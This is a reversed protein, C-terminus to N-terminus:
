PQEEQEEKLIEEKTVAKLGYTRETASPKHKQWQHRHKGCNKWSRGTHELPEVEWMNPIRERPKTYQKYEPIRTDRYTRFWHKVTRGYTSTAKHVYPVPDQRYTYVPHNRFKPWRGWLYRISWRFHSLRGYQTIFDALEHRLDLIKDNDTVAYPKLFRTEEPYDIGTTMTLTDGGSINLDEQTTLGSLYRLLETKDRTKFIVDAKGPKLLQWVKYEHTEIVKHMPTVM